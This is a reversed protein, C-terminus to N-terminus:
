TKLIQKTIIQLQKQQKYLLRCDKLIKQVYLYFFLLYLLFERTRCAYRAIFFYNNNRIAYQFIIENKQTYNRSKNKDLKYTGLFM